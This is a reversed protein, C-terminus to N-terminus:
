TDRDPADSGKVKERGDARALQGDSEVRRDGLVDEIYIMQVLVIM